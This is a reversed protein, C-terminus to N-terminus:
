GPLAAAYFRRWNGGMIGAVATEPYGARVMRGALAPLRAHDELGRCVGDFGGFDSGLGVGDAGFRQVLWDLQRFVEEADTAESGTLLGPAFALGVVGGRGFLAALQSEDLNRPRDCFRRLGTHSCALGGPFADLVERFGPPALHAVDVVLGAAALEALLMRGAATLGAPAAVANGDALRNGGVHTLGVVVIGAARAAAVGLEPLGDANELLRLRGPPGGGQWVRELDARSGILPLAALLRAEAALLSRLHAAAGAGNSTDACYLASTLVRVGGAALREPTFPNDDPLASPQRLLAYAADVHGDCVPWRGASDAAPLSITM